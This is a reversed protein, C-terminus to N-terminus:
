SITCLRSGSRRRRRAASRRAPERSRRRVHRYGHGPLRRTRDRPRRADVPMGLRPLRGHRGSHWGRPVAACYRARASIPEVARRGSRHPRFQWAVPLARAAGACRHAYQDRRDGRHRYDADAGLVQREACDAAIGYIAALTNSPILARWWRIVYGDDDYHSPKILVLQFRRKTNMSCGLVAWRRLRSKRRRHDFAADLALQPLEPQGGIHSRFRAIRAAFAGIPPKAPPARRANGLLLM